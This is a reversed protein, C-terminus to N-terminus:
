RYLYEPLRSSIIMGAPALARLEAIPIYEVPEKSHPDNLDIRVISNHKLNQLQNDIQRKIESKDMGNVNIAIKIMPRTPLWVRSIDLQKRGVGSPDFKLIVYGKAENREAFSTREISGPYIVPTKLLQRNLDCELLQLRHIHGALVAHFGGPIDTGRIVEPGNRFTYNAAGVQAGEIAQHICLLHIDARAADFQTEQVLKTFKDRVKPTFPFGALAITREGIQQVFTTPKEFIHINKHAFWLQLPMRSREHNGPVIYVPMGSGALRLLPDAVLDVLRASVKTRFFLDGGHIVM